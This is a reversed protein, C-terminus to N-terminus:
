SVIYTTSYGNVLILRIEIPLIYQRGNTNIVLGITESPELVNNRVGYEVIEVDSTGTMYHDVKGNYDKIFIDIGDLKSYPLDGTNKVYIMVHTGNYYAYIINVSLRFTDSRSKIAVSISNVLSNLQGMVAVAFLSALIVAVITLLAHTITTSEGM